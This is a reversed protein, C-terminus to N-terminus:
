DNLVATHEVNTGNPIAYTDSPKIPAQPIQFASWEVDERTHLRSALDRYVETTPTLSQLFEYLSVNEIRRVLTIGNTIVNVVSFQGERERLQRKLKLADASEPVVAWFSERDKPGNSWEVAILNQILQPLQFPGAENDRTEQIGDILECHIAAVARSLVDRSHERMPLLLVDSLEIRHDLFRELTYGSKSMAKEVAHELSGLIDHRKSLLMERVGHVYWAVSADFSQSGSASTGLEKTVEFKKSLRTLDHSLRQTQDIMVGVQAEITRLQKHVVGLVISELKSNGYESLVLALNGNGKSRFPMWRSRRCKLEEFDHKIAVKLGDAKERARAADRNVASILDQIRAHAHEAAFQAGDVRSKPDNVHEHLHGMLESALKNAITESRLLLTDFLTNQANEAFEDAEENTLIHDLLQLAAHPLPTHESAELKLADQVLFEVYAKASKGVEQTLIKETDGRLREITLGISEIKQDLAQSLRRHKAANTVISHNLFTTPQTFSVTNRDQLERGRWTDLLELCLQSSFEKLFPRNAAGLQQIAISRGQVSDSQLGSQRNRHYEMLSCFLYEAVDDSADKWQQEDLNDGLHIFDLEGFTRNNGHFAPIEMHTDGPFYNGRLSYHELEQLTAYANALAKDRGKNRPTSHLLIADVKDSDFGAKTLQSRIGYAVDLLMGSGTGGSISTLLLVRPKGSAFPIELTETTRAASEKTCSENIAKEITSFVRQFNSVLALRGLPRMGDTSQDRPINYLWRRNIWRKLYQDLPRYDDAKRVPAAITQIEQWVDEDHNIQNLQQVDSDILFLQLSPANRLHGLRENIRVRLQQLVNAATSGIGVVITPPLLQSSRDINSLIEDLHRTSTSEDRSSPTTQSPHDERPIADLVATRELANPLGASKNGVPIPANDRVAAQESKEVAKELEKVLEVCSEFRQDPNKSLARAIVPQQRAPLSHINPPEKMHQTALRAPSLGDFPLQGTLMEQYVIALSYQDTHRNAKGEFLEPAAYVPTLGHVVSASREYIHKVVGFDAIKLRQGFVLFNEPKVDLHQLSHEAYIYDLAEAADRILRLTEKQPIGANGRSRYKQCHEKLNCDGLETVIVLTGKVVEIREISLILPHRVDKIRNLSRLEADARSSNDGFVMKIATAVGGPAVARWVEGFGGRGILETTVYGPLPEERSFRTTLQSM